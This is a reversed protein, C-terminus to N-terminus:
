GAVDVFLRGSRDEIEVIWVDPDFAAESRLRSEADAADIWEQAHLRMFLRDVGEPLAESQPAPGLVAAAGDLRDIKVIISGAEPSGRRRLMAVAGNVEASRILASVFIDSRLRM